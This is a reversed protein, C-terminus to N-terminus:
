IRSYIGFIYYIIGYITKKAQAASMDAVNGTADLAVTASYDVKSLEDNLTELQKKSLDSYIISKKKM